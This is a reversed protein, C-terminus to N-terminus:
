LGRIEVDYYKLEEKYKENFLRIMKNNYGWHCLESCFVEREAIKESCYLCNAHIEESM